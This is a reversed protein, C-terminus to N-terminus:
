QKSAILDSFSAAISTRSSNTPLIMMSSQQSMAEGPTPQWCIESGFVIM